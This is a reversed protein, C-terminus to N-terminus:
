VRERCSARGIQTIKVDQPADMPISSQSGSHSFDSATVSYPTFFNSGFFDQSYWPYYGGWVGRGRAQMPWYDVLGGLDSSCM